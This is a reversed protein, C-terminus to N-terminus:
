EDDEKRPTLNKPLVGDLSSGRQQKLYSPKGQEKARKLADEYLRQFEARLKGMRAAAGAADWEEERGEQNLKM